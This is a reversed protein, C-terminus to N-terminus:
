MEFSVQAALESLSGGSNNVSKPIQFSPAIANAQSQRRQHAQQSDAVTFQRSQLIPSVNRSSPQTSIGNCGLNANPLEPPIYSPGSDKFTQQQDHYSSYHSGLEQQFYGPKSNQPLGRMEPPPTLARILDAYRSSPWSGKSTDDYTDRSVFPDRFHISSDAYM